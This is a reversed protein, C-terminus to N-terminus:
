PRDSSSKYKDMIPSEQSYGREQHLDRKFEKLYEEFSGRYNAQPTEVPASAERANGGTYPERSAIASLSMRIEQMKRDFDAFMSNRGEPTTVPQTPSAASAHQQAFALTPKYETPETKERTAFSLNEHRPSSYHDSKTEQFSYSRQSPAPVTAYRSSADVEYSKAPPRSSWESDLATPSRDLMEGGRGTNEDQHRDLFSRASMCTPQFTEPSQYAGISPRADVPESSPSWARAPASAYYVEAKSYKAAEPSSHTAERTAERGAVYTSWSEASKSKSPSERLESPEYRDGQSRAELAYAFERVSSSSAISDDQAFQTAVSCYDRFHDRARTLARTATEVSTAAAEALISDYRQPQTDSNFLVQHAQKMEDIARYADQMLRHVVHDAAAVESVSSPQITAIYSANQDSMSSATMPSPPVYSPARHLSAEHFSLSASTMPPSLERPRTSAEGMYKATLEEVLTARSKPLFTAAEDYSRASTRTTMRPSAKEESPAAENESFSRPVIRKRALGAFPEATPAIRPAPAPPLAVVAAPREEAVDKDVWDMSRPAPRPPRAEM